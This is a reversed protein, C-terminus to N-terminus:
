EGDSDKEGDVISKRWRKTWPYRMDDGGGDSYAADDDEGDLDKRYFYHANRDFEDDSDVEDDPYDASYHNEANEDEEIDEEEEDEEAQENYFEDIDPQSDLVLLGYNAEVDTVLENAPMRIYTDIVYESDDDMDVDMIQNDDHTTLSESLQAKEPHREHYRLAPKKPKFRSAKAQAAESQALSRGIEQLTFAQMEEALKESNVDWPTLAGSPLRVNRSPLSSFQSTQKTVPKLGTRAAQGPKKLPRPPEDAHVVPRALSGSPPTSSGSSKPCKIARRESFVLLRKPANGNASGSQNINAASRSIHFRRLETRSDVAHPSNTPTEQSAFGMPRQSVGNHGEDSAGGTKRSHITEPQSAISPASGVRSLQKIRRVATPLSIQQSDHTALQRSFVFDTARRQRKGTSEQVRLFEVPEDTRKRKIHVTVPPVSM